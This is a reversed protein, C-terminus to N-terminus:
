GPTAERSSGLSSRSAFRDISSSSALDLQSVEVNNMKAVALQAKQPDRSGIAVTAGAKALVRTTELGLGARGGTVIAVKGWLDRGALAEEATTKAGFGSIL